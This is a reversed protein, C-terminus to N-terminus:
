REHASVIGVVRQVVQDVTLDTSDIVVADPAIRLPDKERSSDIEDRRKLSLGVKRVDDTSTDSRSIERHRRRAREEPSADLYFKHRADPFVATGIDRGEMVLRGFRTLGRLWEVVRERVEPQAAVPSVHRNIKETRLESDLFRDEIRFGVRGLEAFFEPCCNALSRRVAAADDGSGGEELLKWTVARYLSGSDVYLRSLEVAVRRAVTSKGSAAPGDIAIVDDVPMQTGKLGGASVAPKM